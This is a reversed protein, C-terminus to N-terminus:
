LVTTRCTANNPASHQGATTLWSANCAMSIRMSSPTQSERSSWAVLTSKLLMRIWVIYSARRLHYPCTICRSSFETTRVARWMLGAPWRGRPLCLLRHSSRSLSSMRATLKVGSSAMSRPRHFTPGVVRPSQWNLAFHSSFFEYLRSIKQKFKRFSASICKRKFANIHLFYGIFLQNTWRM